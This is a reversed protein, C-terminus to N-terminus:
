GGIIMLPDPTVNMTMGPQPGTYTVAPAVITYTTAYNKKRTGPGIAVSLTVKNTGAQCSAGKFVFEANGDDDLVATATKTNVFPSGSANSEWRIGGKCHGALAASSITATDEAYAPSTSVTFTTYVDSHGSAPTNGTEVENNPFGGFRYPFTIAPPNVAVSTSTSVGSSPITGLVSYTGPVCGIGDVVVTANGDADVVTSISNASTTPSAVSGGQLTEFSVSSCAAQLDPSSVVATSGDYISSTSVQVVAHLNPPAVHETESTCPSTSPLNLDDGSYVAQWYYTGDAPFAQPNSGPMVGPANIAEEDVNGAPDSCAADLYVAYSVTGTATSADAGSLQSADGVPSTPAVTISDGKQGWGALDTTIFTPARVNDVEGGSGVPGCASTSPANLPDGSYTAQWYYNGAIGFPSSSSAPAQGPGTFAEPSGAVVLDTCAADSFVNYTVTGTARAAESGNITAQDTVPDNTEVSIGPGSQGGGSLSTSVSTPAQWDVTVSNSSVLGTLNNISAVVTDLGANAGAYSYTAIGNADTTVTGHDGVNPGATVAFNMSAGAVGQGCGNVFSAQVSATQGIVQTQSGPVLSLNAQAACGGTGIPAWQESENYNLPTGPAWPAGCTAVDVGGTNLVKQSDSFSQTVGGATVNVVPVVNSQACVGAYPSGGPGIDSSDMLGPGPTCGSSAGSATQAIVLQGNAPITVSHNWIDYTCTSYQITVSNIFVPSASSNTVRVAGSDFECSAAPLCGEYILGPASGPQFPFPFNQDNPRANDAYGVWVTLPPGSAQAPGASVTIGVTAFLPLLLTLAVVSLAGRRTWGSGTM